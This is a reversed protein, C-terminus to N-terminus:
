TEGARLGRSKSQPRQLCRGSACSRVGACPIYRLSCQITARAIDSQCQLHRPAAWPRM